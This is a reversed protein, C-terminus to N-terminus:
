QQPIESDPNLNSNSQSHYPIYKEFSYPALSYPPDVQNLMLSAVDTIEKLKRYITTPDSLDADCLAFLQTFQDDSYEKAYVDRIIEKYIEKGNSDFVIVWDRLLVKNSLLYVDLTEIMIKGMGKSRTPMIPNITIASYNLISSTTIEESSTTTIIEEAM